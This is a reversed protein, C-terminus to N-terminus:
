LRKFKTPKEKGQIWVQPGPFCELFLKPKKKGRQWLLKQAISPTVTSNRFTRARHDKSRRIFSLYPCLHLFLSSLDSSLALPCKSRAQSLHVLPWPHSPTISTQIWKSRMLYVTAKVTQKQLIGGRLNLSSVQEAVNVQQSCLQSWTYSKGEGSGWMRWSWAETRM